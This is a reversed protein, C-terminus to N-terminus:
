RTLLPVRSASRFSKETKAENMIKEITQKEGSRIASIRNLAGTARERSIQDADSRLVENALGEGKALFGRDVYAHSLNAKPLWDEESAKEFAAIESGPLELVRYDVGLNNLSIADPGQDLRLNYHYLGLRRNGMEGYLYAIRFRIDPDSPNLELVRELAASELERDSQSKAVEALCLYTAGLEAPDSLTTILDRILKFAKEQQDDKALEQAALRLMAPKSDVSAIEAGDMFIKAAQNHDKFHRYYIALQTRADANQPDIQVVTRLQQLSAMHGKVSKLRLYFYRWSQDSRFPELMMFKEFEEDAKQFDESKVLAMVNEFGLWPPMNEPQEPSNTEQPPLVDASPPVTPLTESILRSIMAVLRNSCQPIANRDFPIWETDADLDTSPFEIGQEILFLVKRGKGLAFGSEQIVWNSTTWQSLTKPPRLASLVRRFTNSVNEERQIPLRRTLIGIYFDNHEIGQRVKESIPRLQAEKADEFGFGIPRLSELIKRIENWLADDQELFSRGVFANIRTVSPVGNSV